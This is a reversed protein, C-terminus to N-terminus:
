ARRLRRAVELLVAGRRAIGLERFTPIQTNTRSYLRLRGARARGREFELHVIRMADDFVVELDPRRAALRHVLESDAARQWEEFPGLEEFVAARVAMNNCYAFRYAAPCCRLVYATKANEWAGIWKLPASAGEPYSCHGLLVAVETRSMGREIAALWGPAVACDADTFAIVPARARRIAANRAAYAGPRSEELLTAEPYREVVSRSNDSSGNDVLLLEWEGQIGRQERLSDLCAALTEERDRFPVVVSIRPSESM